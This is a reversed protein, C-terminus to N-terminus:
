NPQANDLLRFAMRVAIDDLPMGALAHIWLLTMTPCTSMGPPIPGLPQPNRPRRRNM